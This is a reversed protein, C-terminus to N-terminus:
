RREDALFSERVRQWFPFSRFRAFKVKKDSVRCRISTVNQHIISAYHDYTMQFDIPNVPRIEVDHHKPLLMPSGITRYVRNNISAMETIQIAELAPHVIAGGLAKNYATSGSPTSVCLGDGRFTEFYDGRISLDCVLTQNFSKITCENLALLQNHSGDAYDISLELLPYQVTALDQKAIHDILEDMEEPRWDAYFGLHGTHIGVLTITEVQDLYSHFAQLMTGDGGISVVIEPQSVDLICGRDTLAQELQQKLAHSREDDRATIAFHM